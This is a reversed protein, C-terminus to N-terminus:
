NCGDAPYTWLSWEARPESEVLQMNRCINAVSSDAIVYRGCPTEGSRLDIRRHEIKPLKLRYLWVPYSKDVSRDHSLCTEKEPLQAATFSQGDSIEGVRRLHTQNIITSTVSLSCVMLLTVLIVIKSSSRAAIVAIASLVSCGIITLVLPLDLRWLASLSQVMIIRYTESVKGASALSVLLTLLIIPAATLSSSSKLKKTSIAIVGIFALPLSWPDIYRGYLLTDERISGSLVIGGLIIMSVASVSLFTLEPSASVDSQARKRAFAKISSTSSHILGLLAFGCTGASLALLQGSSTAFMNSDAINSNAAAIRSTPWSSTLTLAAIVLTVAPVLGYLVSRLQRISVAAVLIGVVLVVARPHLSVAIGTALGAACMSRISRHSLLECILLLLLILWTEPWGIRSSSSVAPHIAALFSCFIVVAPSAGHRRSFSAALWVILGAALANGVLAVTHLQSGPLNGFLAHALGYGPFYPTPDILYGGHLYQGYSLYASVDPLAVPGGHTVAILLHVTITVAAILIEPARSSQNTLTKLM